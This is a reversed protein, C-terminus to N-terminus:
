DNCDIHSTFYICSSSSNTLRFQVFYNNGDYYAIGEKKCIQYFRISNELFSNHLCHKIKILDYFRNGVNKSITIVIKLKSHISVHPTRFNFQV